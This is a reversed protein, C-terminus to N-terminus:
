FRYSVGCGFGYAYDKDIMPSDKIENSYVRLSSEAYLSIRDTVQWDAMLRVYPSVGREPDYRDLGSKKAEAASIGYYYQNFKDSTWIAGIQPTIGFEGFAFRKMFNVDGMFGDSKGSIDGGLQVNLMGFGTDLSYGVNAFVSADRDDLRKMRRDDSDNADFSLPMYSIGVSLRQRDTKLVYAGAELGKLYFHETEVSIAPVPYTKADTARYGYDFVHAGLGVTGEFAYAPAACCAAVALAAFRKKMKKQEKYISNKFPSYFNM